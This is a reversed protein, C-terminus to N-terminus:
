AIMRAGPVALGNLVDTTEVSKESADICIRKSTVNM